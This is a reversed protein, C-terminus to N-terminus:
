NLRSFSLMHTDRLASFPLHLLLVTRKVLCDLLFLLTPTLAVFSEQVFVELLFSFVTHIENM